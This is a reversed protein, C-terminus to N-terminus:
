LDLTEVEVKFHSGKGNSETLKQHNSFAAGAKAESKQKQDEGTKRHAVGDYPIYLM